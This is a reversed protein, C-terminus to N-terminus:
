RRCHPLGADGHHLPSQSGARDTEKYPNKATCDLTNLSRQHHHSHGDVPKEPSHSFAQRRSASISLEPLPLRTETATQWLDDSPSIKRCQHDLSWILM